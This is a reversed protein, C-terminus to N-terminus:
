GNEMIIFDEMEVAKSQLDMVFRKFKSGSAQDTIGKERLKEYLLLDFPNREPDEYSPADVVVKGETTEFANGFHLVTSWVGIDFSNVYGSEVNVVHVKTTGNPDNLIAQSADKGMIPATFDWYWPSEFVVVYNETLAFSHQYSLKDVSIKAVVERKVPTEPRLRFITILPNRKDDM